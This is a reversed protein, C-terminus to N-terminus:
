YEAPTASTVVTQGVKTGGLDFRGLVGAFVFTSVGPSAIATNNGGIDEWLFTTVDAGVVPALAIDPSLRLDLGARGRVLQFGHELAVPAQASAQPVIWFLRYGAGLELFPDTRTQPAIHYAVALTGAVGRTGAATNATLEQYQGGISVAFHPDARYGLSAEAGVGEHAISPMGVGKRLIGFPQTYGTGVTIELAQSPAPVGQEIYTKEAPQASALAPVLLVALAAAATVLHPKM